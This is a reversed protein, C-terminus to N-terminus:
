GGDYSFVRDFVISSVYFSRTSLLLLCFEALAQPDILRSFDERGASMGTSVARPYLNIININSLYADHSISDVYGKLGHKSAAYDPDKTDPHLGAISNVNVIIGGGKEKLFKLSERVVVLSNNFSALHDKKDYGNNIVIDPDHARLWGVDLKASDLVVSRMAPEAVVRRGTITVAYHPALVRAFVLGFGSTGGVMLLNKKM